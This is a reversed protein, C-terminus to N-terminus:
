LENLSWDYDLYSISAKKEKIVKQQEPDSTMREALYFEVSGFKKSFDEGYWKFISSVELKKKEALYRNRSKHYLFKFCLM